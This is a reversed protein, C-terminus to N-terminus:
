SFWELYVAVSLFLMAMVISYREGAHRAIWINALLFALETKTM